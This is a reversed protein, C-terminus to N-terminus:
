GPLGTEGHSVNQALDRMRADLESCKARLQAMDRSQAEFSDCSEKIRAIHVNQTSVNQTQREQAADVVVAKHEVYM